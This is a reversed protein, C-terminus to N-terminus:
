RCNDGEILGRARQELPSPRDKPYFIRDSRSIPLTTGRKQVRLLERLVQLSNGDVDDIDV